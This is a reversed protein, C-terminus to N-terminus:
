SIKMMLIDECDNDKEVVLRTTKKASGMVGFLEEIISKNNVSINSIYTGNIKKRSIPISDATCYNTFRVGIYENFKNKCKLFELYKYKEYNDILKCAGSSLTIRGHGVSAFAATKGRFSKPINVIQWKM